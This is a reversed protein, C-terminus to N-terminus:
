VLGEAGPNAVLAPGVKCPSRATAGEWHSQWRSSGSVALFGTGHPMDESWSSPAPPTPVSWRSRQETGAFWPPAPGSPVPAAPRLRWSQGTELGSADEILRGPLADGGALAGPWAEICDALGLPILSKLWAVNDLDICQVSVSWEPVKLLAVKLQDRGLQRM